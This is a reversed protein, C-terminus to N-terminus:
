APEHAPEKQNAILRLVDEAEDCSRCPILSANVLVYFTEAFLRLQRSQRSFMVLGSSELRDLLAAEVKERFMTDSSASLDDALYCDFPVCLSLATAIHGKHAPSLERMPRDMKDGLETFDTVRVLLELADLNWLRAIIAVNDNASLAPHFASSFGLPWSLQGHVEVHGEDPVEHGSIIRLLTSKGAGPPALIGVRECREVRLSIRNLVVNLNHSSGHVRSIDSLIIM